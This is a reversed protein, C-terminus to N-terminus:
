QVLEKLLLILTLSSSSNAFLVYLHHVHHVVMVLLVNTVHKKSSDIKTEVDSNLPEMYHYEGGHIWVHYVMGWIHVALFSPWFIQLNVSYCLLM